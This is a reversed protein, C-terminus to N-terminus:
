KLSQLYPILADIQEPTLPAIKMLNGPKVQQPDTLWRRLNETNNVESAGAFVSRSAFHTLNPGIKGQAKSGDITHCGICPGTMFIQEGKAADGSKVAVPAQQQELWAQFKDLPEAVVTVRM